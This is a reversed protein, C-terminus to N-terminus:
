RRPRSVIPSRSITASRAFALSTISRNAVNGSTSVTIPRPSVFIDIRKPLPRCTSRRITGASDNPAASSYKVPEFCCLMTSRPMALSRPSFILSYPTNRTGCPAAFDLDRLPRISAPICRRGCRPLHRRWARGAAREARSERPGTRIRTPWPRALKGFSMSSSSMRPSRCMCVVSVSPLAESSSITAAARSRPRLYMAM